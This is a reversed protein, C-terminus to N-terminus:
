GHTVDQELAQSGPKSTLFSPMCARYCLGDNIITAIPRIRTVERYVTVNPYPVVEDSPGASGVRSRDRLLQRHDLIM